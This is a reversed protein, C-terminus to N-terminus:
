AIGEGREERRRKAARARALDGHDATRDLARENALERSVGRDIVTECGMLVSRGARFEDLARRLHQGVQELRDRLERQALVANGTPDATVSPSCRECRPTVTWPKGGCYECLHSGGLDAVRNAHAAGHFWRYAVGFSEKHFTGGQDIGRGEGAPIGATTEALLDAILRDIDEPRPASM